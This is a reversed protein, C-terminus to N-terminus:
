RKKNEEWAEHYNKRCRGDVCFKTGKRANIPKGDFFCTLGSKRKGTLIDVSYVPAPAQESQRKDLVEQLSRDYREYMTRDYCQGARGEVEGKLEVTDDEGDGDDCQVDLTTLKTGYVKGKKSVIGLPEHRTLPKLKGDKGKAVILCSLHTYRRFCELLTLSRAHEGNVMVCGCDNCLQYGGMLLLTMVRTKRINPETGKWIPFSLRCQQCISSRNEGPVCLVGHPCRNLPANTNLFSAEQERIVNHLTKPIRPSTLPHLDPLLGLAKATLHTMSSLRHAPIAQDCGYQWGVGMPHPARFARQIAAHYPFREHLPVFIDSQLLVHITHIAALYASSYRPPSFHGFIPGTVDFETVDFIRYSAYVISALLSGLSKDRPDEAQSPQLTTIVQSTHPTVPLFQKLSSEKRKTVGTSGSAM